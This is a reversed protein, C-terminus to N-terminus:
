PDRVHLTEAIAALLDLDPESTGDFLYLSMVAEGLTALVLLEAARGDFLMTAIALDDFGSPPERREFADLAGGEAIVDDLSRDGLPAVLIRGWRDVDPDGFARRESEIPIWNAPTVVGVAVTGLGDAGLEDLEKTLVFNIRHLLRPVASADFTLSDRLAGAERWPEGVDEGGAYAQVLFRADGISLLDVEIREADPTGLKSVGSFRTTPVGGVAADFQEVAEWGEGILALVDGVLEDDSGFALPGKFALVSVVAESFSRELWLVEEIDEPGLARNAPLPESEDVVPLPHDLRVTWHQPVDAGVVGDVFMGVETSMERQEVVYEVVDDFSRRGGSDLGLQAAVEIRHEGAVPVFGGDTPIRIVLNGDEDLDDLAFRFASDGDHSRDPTDLQYNLDMQGPENAGRVVLEFAFPVFAVPDSVEGSDVAVSRLEISIESAEETGGDNGAQETVGNNPPGEETERNVNSSFGLIDLQGGRASGSVRCRARVEGRISSWQERSSRIACFVTGSDDLNEVSLSVAFEGNVQAPLEWPTTVIETVPGDGTDYTVSAEGSSSTVQLTFDLPDSSGCGAAAVALGVLAVASFRLRRFSPMSLGVRFSM